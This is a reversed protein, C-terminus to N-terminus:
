DHSRRADRRERRQEERAARVANSRRAAVGRPAVTFPGGPVTFVRRVESNQCEPCPASEGVAAFADFTEGCRDCEFSYLPM